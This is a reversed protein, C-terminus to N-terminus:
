DRLLPLVETAIRELQDIRGSTNANFANFGAKILGGLREAIQEPTGAVLELRAPDPQGGVLITLNLACTFDQANDGRAALVKGLMVPLDDDPVHGLSPIWGNAHRGTV